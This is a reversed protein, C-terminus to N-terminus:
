TKPQCIREIHMALYGTENEPITINLAGEIRQLINKAVSYSHPICKKTYEEMDLTLVENENLRALLYKMHTMLRSYSLSNVDFDLGYERTIERISENVIVAVLMGENSRHDIASHIQLTIYGIEDENIEVNLREKIVPKAQRAIEYEEPYLLKIENSFPNSITMGKKLREIAFAIHDSLPLLINEDIEQYKEKALSLIYSSIEICIPDLKRLLDDTKGKFTSPNLHYVICDKPVEIQENLTKGFGIGKYLLLLVENKKTDHAIVANHNLLKIIKIM